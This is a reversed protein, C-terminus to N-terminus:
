GANDTDTDLSWHFLYAPSALLSFGVKRYKLELESGLTTARVALSQGPVRSGSLITFAEEIEGGLREAEDTIRKPSMDRFAGVDNWEQYIRGGDGEKAAFTLWNLLGLRIMKQETVRAMMSKYEEETAPTESDAYAILANLPVLGLRAYFEVRVSSIVLDLQELVPHDVALGSLRQRVQTEENTSFVSDAM